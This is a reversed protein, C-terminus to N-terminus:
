FIGKNYKIMAYFSIGIGAILGIALIIMGINNFIAKETYIAIISLVSCIMVSIGIIVTGIGVKKGFPIRDEEAVRKRHYSHLMSINGKMNSIGIAVCMVGVLFAVIFGFM